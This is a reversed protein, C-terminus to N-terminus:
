EVLPSLRRKSRQNCLDALLSYLRASSGPVQGSNFRLPMESEARAAQDLKGMRADNASLANQASLISPTKNMSLVKKLYFENDLDIAECLLLCRNFTPFHIM